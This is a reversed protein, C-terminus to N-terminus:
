YMGQVKLGEQTDAELFVGVLVGQTMIGNSLNSAMLVWTNWKTLCSFWSPIAQKENWTSYLVLIKDGQGKKGCIGLRKDSFGIQLSVVIGVWGVRIFWFLIFIQFIKFRWIMNSTMMDNLWWTFYIKAMHWEGQCAARARDIYQAGLVTGQAWAGEGIDNQHWSVIYFHVMNGFWLTCVSPEWKIKM